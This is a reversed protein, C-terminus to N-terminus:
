EMLDLLALGVATGFIPGIEDLRSKLKEPFIIGSWPNALVVPLSTEKEIYKDLGKLGSTGGSLIIKSIQAGQYNKTFLALSNKLEDMIAKLTPSFLDKGTQRTIEDINQSMKIKEARERDISFAEMLTKTLKNGGISVSKSLLLNGGASIVINCVKEGIDLIANNEKTGGGTLARAISFADVEMSNIKFDKEGLVKEYRSSISKMIAVLAVKKEENKTNNKSDKEESLDNNNSIEKKSTEQSVLGKEGVVGEIIQWDYIVDDLPIPIFKPAETRIIEDVDKEDVRGLNVVTILSAYSPMAINIVKKELGMEDFIKEIIEGANEDILNGGFGSNILSTNTKTLSYNDLIIGEKNKKLCVVKVSSSGIDVGISFNKKRELFKKLSSIDLSLNM